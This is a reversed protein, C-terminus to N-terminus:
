RFLGELDITDAALGTAEPLDQAAGQRIRDFGTTTAVLTLDAAGPHACGKACGTVHLTKGPPVAAALRRALPRVAAHAQLCGPAGTCAIVRRRPDDANVILGPLDPLVTLGEILLMRWPTVRLDGLAALAALTEAPIQGFEFGVLTGMPHSGPGCAPAPPAPPTDAGDLRAGRAILGAMRGRGGTVGGAAVFWHALDVARRAADQATVARGLAMGDCRLILGGAGCRELRIDASVDQLVPAPGSDVAFGFKGPLVPAGTLAAALDRALAHTEADAFPTVLIARRAEAAADADILDLARLDAILRPHSAQTVGRLQMNGRSSLDILGNGHAQAAGAIGAAQARTLRGAVPRIRVVLGDGSLMPRLAGPCWGQVVFGAAGTM